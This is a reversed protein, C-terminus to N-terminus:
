FRLVDPLHRGAELMDGWTVAANRPIAGTRYVVVAYANWAFAAAAVMWLTTRLRPTARHFFWATGAMLPLLAADYSRNGFASGYWWCWWAASVYASVAFAAAVATGRGRECWWWAALGGFAVALFPHWYMAGHLPSFWSQWWAPRLWHFTEGEVGYAFVAWDGYVRWWAFSQLAVLPAAGMAFCAVARLLAGPQARLAWWGPLALLGFVAVQYRTAFALAWAAGALVWWVGKSLPLQARATCYALAAVATFAASHTMSLNITQYYLLPSAAWVVLVGAMADPGTVGVWAKVARIGLAIGAAAYLLQGAMISIQYVANWGDPLLVDNGALRCLRVVGDALFYWPASLLSWGVGYKNPLRGTRTPPLALAAARYEPTLTNCTEIDNRFDWDGDVAASRLWLYNFTNDYGRLASRARIEVLQSTFLVAGVVLCAAAWWRSARLGRSPGADSDPM